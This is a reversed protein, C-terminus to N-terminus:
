ARSAVTAAELTEVKHFSAAASSCNAARRPAGCVEFGFRDDRQLIRHLARFRSEIKRDFIGAVGAAPATQEGSSLLTTGVRAHEM